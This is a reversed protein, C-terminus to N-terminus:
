LILRIVRLNRRLKEGLFEFMRRYVEFKMVLVGFCYLTTIVQAQATAYHVETKSANIISKIIEDELADLELNIGILFRLEEASKTIEKDAYVYLENYLHRLAPQLGYHLYPNTSGFDERLINQKDFNVKELKSNFSHQLIYDFNALSAELEFLPDPYLIHPVTTNTNPTIFNYEESWVTVSMLGIKVQYADYIREYYNELTDRVNVFCVSYFVAFLIGSLALFMSLKLAVKKWIVIKLTPLTKDGNRVRRFDMSYFNELEESTEPDFFDNARRVVEIKLDQAKQVSIKALQEWFHNYTKQLYFVSPIVLAFCLALGAGCVGIVVLLSCEVEKMFDHQKEIYTHSTSNLSTFAEGLGNRYNYYLYKNSLTCEEIDLRAAASTSMIFDQTLEVLNKTVMGPDGNELHWSRIFDNDYLKGFGYGEIVAKNDILDGLLDRLNDSSTTLMSRVEEIDYISSGENALMLMRSALGSKMFEFTFSNLMQLLFVQNIREVSVTLYVLMTISAAVLALTAILMTMRSLKVANMFSEIMRHQRRLEQSNQSVILANENIPTDKLDEEPNKSIQIKAQKNADICEAAPTSLYEGRRVQAPGELMTYDGNLTVQHLKTLDEIDQQHQELKWRLFEADNTFFFLLKISVKHVSMIATAMKVVTDNKRVEYAKFLELDQLNIPLLDEIYRGELRDQHQDLVQSLLESHAYIMGQDDVIAVERTIPLEIISVVFVPYSEFASLRAIIRCDKLYGKGNCIFVNFPLEIDTNKCNTAFNLMKKTHNKRIPPPIYDSLESGIFLAREVGFISLAVDNAHTIKGFNDPNADIMLLGNSEKFFNLNRLIQYEKREELVKAGVLQIAQSQGDEAIVTTLFSHYLEYIGEADPFKQMIQEYRLRVDIAAECIRDLSRDVFDSDPNELTFEYWLRYSILTAEEDLRKTQDMMTKFELYEKEEGLDECSELYEKICAEHFKTEFSFGARHLRAHKVLALRNDQLADICFYVECIDLMKPVVMCRARFDIFHNMLADFEDSTSAKRALLRLSLEFEKIDKTSTVVRGAEAEAKDLRTQLIHLSGLIVLPSVLMMLYFSTLLNGSMEGVQGAAAAWTLLTFLAFYLYNMRDFYYPLVERVKLALYLGVAATIGRFAIPHILDNFFYLMVLFTFGLRVILDFNATFKFDNTHHSYGIQTNAVLKIYELTLLSISCVMSLLCTGGNVNLSAVPLDEFEIVATKSSFTYKISTVLAMQFPIVVVSFCPHTAAKLSMVALHHLRTALKLSAIAVVLLLVQSLVVAQTTVIFHWLSVTKYAIWELRTFRLIGWFGFEESSLECSTILSILQLVQFGTCATLIFFDKTHKSNSRNHQNRRLKGMVTLLRSVVEKWLGSFLQDQHVAADFDNEQDLDIM